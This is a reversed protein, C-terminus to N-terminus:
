SSLKPVGWIFLSGGNLSSASFLSATFYATLSFQYIDVLIEHGTGTIVTADTCVKVYINM